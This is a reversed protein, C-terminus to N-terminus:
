TGLLYSFKAHTIIIGVNTVTYQLCEFGIILPTLEDKGVHIYM